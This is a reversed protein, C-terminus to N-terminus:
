LSPRLGSGMWAWCLFTGHSPAPTPPAAGPVLTRPLGLQPLPEGTDSSNNEEVNIQENLNKEATRSGRLTMSLQRKIKKMRDMTPGPPPHSQS